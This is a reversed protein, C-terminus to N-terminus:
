PPSIYSGVEPQCIQFFRCSTHLRSASSPMALFARTTMSSRPVALCMIALLRGVSFTMSSVRFTIEVNWDLAPLMPAPPSMEGLLKGM